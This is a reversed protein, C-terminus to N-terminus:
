LLSKWDLGMSYTNIGGCVKRAEESAGRALGHTQHSAGVGSAKLVLRSRFFYQGM